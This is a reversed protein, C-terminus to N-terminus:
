AKKASYEDYLNDYKAIKDFYGFKELIKYVVNNLSENPGQIDITILFDSEYDDAFAEQRFARAM